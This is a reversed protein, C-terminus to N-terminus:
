VKKHIRPLTVIFTRWHYFPGKSFRNSWIIFAWWFFLRFFTPLLNAAFPLCLMVAASALSRFKNLEFPWVGGNVGYRVSNHWEEPCLACVNTTKPESAIHIRVKILLHFKLLGMFVLTFTMSSMSIPPFYFLFFFVISFVPEGWDTFTKASPTYCLFPSLTSCTRAHKLKVTKIYPFIEEYALFFAPSHFLVSVWNRM